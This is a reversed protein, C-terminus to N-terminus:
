SQPQEAKFVCSPVSREFSGDKEPVPPEPYSNTWNRGSRASAITRVRSLGLGKPNLAELQIRKQCYSPPGIATNMEARGLEAELRLLQTSQAHHM